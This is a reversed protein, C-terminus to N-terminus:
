RWLGMARPLEERGIKPSALLARAVNEVEAWHEDVFGHAREVCYKIWLDCVKGPFHLAFAWDVVNEYDFSAGIHNRRGRFKAEAAPGALTIVARDEVESRQARTLKGRELADVLRGPLPGHQVHGLTQKKANPVISVHRVPVDLYIAAVAHGAEHYATSTLERDSNM